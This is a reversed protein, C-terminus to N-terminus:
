LLVWIFLFIPVFLNINTGIEYRSVCFMGNIMFFSANLADKIIQRLTLSEFGLYSGGDGTKLVPAM